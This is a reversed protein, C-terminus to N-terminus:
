QCWNLTTLIRFNQWIVRWILIIPYNIFLLVMIRLEVNNCLYNIMLWNKFGFRKKMLKRSNEYIILGDILVVLCFLQINQMQIKISLVMLSSLYWIMLYLFMIMTLILIHSLLLQLLSTQLYSRPLLFEQHWLDGWIQSQQIVFEYSRLHLRLGQHLQLVFPFKPLAFRYNNACPITDSKHYKLHQILSLFRQLLQFLFKQQTALALKQDIGM